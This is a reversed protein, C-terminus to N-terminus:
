VAHCAVAHGPAIERLAPREAACRASALPCHAAWPCGPTVRGARDEEPPLTDAERGLFRQSYPHVAAVCIRDTPGVEFLRGAHMVAIRQALKRVVPLSQSIVLYALNQERQVRLLLNLLEKQLRPDVGSVPEDAAILLPGLALARAIAIRQQQGGSMELPTRDLYAAPLEVQEMARALRAEPDPLGIQRMQEGLQKRITRDLDLSERADQRIIQLRRQAKRKADGGLKGVDQGAFTIRGRDYPRRLTVAEALTTKGAGSGGMVGLTEGRRLTLSVGDLARVPKAGWLGFPGTPDTHRLVVVDQLELLIDNM